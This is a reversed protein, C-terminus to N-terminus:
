AIRLADELDHLAPDVHEVADQGRAGGARSAGEGPRAPEVQPVRAEGAVLAREVVVARARGAGAEAARVDPVEHVLLLQEAQPEQAQMIEPEQELEGRPCPLRDLAPRERGELVFRELSE